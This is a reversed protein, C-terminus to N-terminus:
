LLLDEEKFGEITSRNILIYPIIHTEFGSQSYLIKLQMEILSVFTPFQPAFIVQEGRSNRMPDQGDRIFDMDFMGDWKGEGMHTGRIDLFERRVSMRGKRLHETGPRYIRVDGFRQCVTKYPESNVRLRRYDLKYSYYVADAVLSYVNKGTRPGIPRTNGDFVTVGRTSAVYFSDGWKRYAVDDRVGVIVMRYTRMDVHFRRIIDYVEFDKLYVKEKRFYIPILYTTNKPRVKM